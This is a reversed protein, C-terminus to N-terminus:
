IKGGANIYEEGYKAWAKRIFSNDIKGKPDLDIEKAYAPHWKNVWTRFADGSQQSKFPTPSFQSAIGLENSSPITNPRSTSISSSTSSALTGEGQNELGISEALLQKKKKNRSYMVIGGIALLGIAIGIMIKNKKEM